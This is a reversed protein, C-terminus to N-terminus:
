PNVGALTMTATHTGRQDVWTVSVKEGPKHTRIATGLSASSTVSQGGLKTIVSNQTIGASEAPLGPLVSVVLAGASVNLGLQAAANATLDRVNVGMYGVQGYIIDSSAEGSRITNVFSL